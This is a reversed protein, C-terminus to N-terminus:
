PFCLFFSTGSIYTVGCRSATSEFCTLLVSKITVDDIFISVHRKSPSFPGIM